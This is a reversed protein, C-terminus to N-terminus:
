MALQEVGQVSFDLPEPSDFEGCDAISRTIEEKQYPLFLFKLIKRM